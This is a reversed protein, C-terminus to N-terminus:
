TVALADLVGLRAARRAPLAAAALSAAGAVAAAAVLQFLPLATRTLGPGRMAAVLVWGFFVAMVGGLVTGVSAIILAEARIMVRLQARAMGIARLLGLERIREHVSLALTNAIGLLAIVVSLALLAVMPLLVRDVQQEEAALVESRDHVALNPYDSLARRIAQRGASSTTGAVLRVDVEMDLQEVYNAAFAGLSIVYDSRVTTSSYTAQLTVNRTGTRAFIMPVPDGVRWGHRAAVSDRVLVGGDDLRRAAATSGPDLRYLSTVTAPDIAVLTETKGHLGWQGSRVESVAAVAPSRRLRDAAVPPVGSAGGPVQYSSVVFDALMSSEITRKASAKMSAGLVAVVGVLGIGVMLASATGATRRPSRLANQRGLLAPWGLVRVLPAGILRAAPAAVFPALLVVGVLVAGSGVFMLPWRGRGLVGLLVIAGGASATAVGGALRERRPASAKEPAGDIAALPAVRNAQRAPQMAALATVLVGALLGAAASLGHFVVPAPPAALGFARLLALLGPAAGLGGGIGAASAAGGVLVAEGLVSVTVQRRSAGLARLLGLERSRQAVVMSFTNFVIFGGMLLAVGALVMLGPTLFRLSRAWSEKAQRAAQDATLVEYSEPLAAAVRARLAEASM